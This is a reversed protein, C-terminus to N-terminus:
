VNMGKRSNQTTCRGANRENETLKSTDQANLPIAFRALYKRCLVFNLTISPLIVHRPETLLRIFKSLIM